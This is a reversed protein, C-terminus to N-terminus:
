QCQIKIFKIETDSINILDVRSNNIFKVINVPKLETLIQM